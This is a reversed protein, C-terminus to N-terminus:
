LLRLAARTVKELRAKFAPNTEGWDATAKIANLVSGRSRNFVRGVEAVSLGSLKHCLAMTALRATNLPESKKPQRMKDLANVVEPAFEAAVLDAILACYLVSERM